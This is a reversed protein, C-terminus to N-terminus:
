LVISTNQSIFLFSAQTKASSLNDCTLSSEKLCLPSLLLWCTDEYVNRYYQFNLNGPQVRYIDMDYQANNGLHAEKMQEEKLKSVILPQIPHPSM